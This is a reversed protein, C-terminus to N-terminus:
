SLWKRFKVVKNLLTEIPGLSATVHSAWNVAVFDIEGTRAALFHKLFSEAPQPMDSSRDTRFATRIYRAVHTAKAVSKEAMPLLRTPAIRFRWFISGLNKTNAKSQTSAAGFPTGSPEAVSYGQAAHWEGGTPGIANLLKKRRVQSCPVLILGFAHTLSQGAFLFM